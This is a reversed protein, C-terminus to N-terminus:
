ILYVQPNRAAFEAVNVLAELTGITTEPFRVRVFPKDKKPQYAGLSAVEVEEILREAIASIPEVWGEGFRRLMGKEAGPCTTVLSCRTCVDVKAFWGDSESSPDCERNLIDLFDPVLCPTLKELKVSVGLARLLPVISKLRARIVEPPAVSELFGSTRIAGSFKIQRSGADFAVMATALLEDVNEAFIVINTQVCFGLQALNRIGRITQEFASRKVGNLRDHLDATPGMLSTRVLLRGLGIDSLREASPRHAFLRANTALTVQRGTDIAYALVEWFVPDITPEGGFIDIVEEAGAQDIEAVIEALPRFAARSIEEEVMCFFCHNNCSATLRIIM